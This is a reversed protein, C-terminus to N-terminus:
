QKYQSIREIHQQKVQEDVESYPKLLQYVDDIEQQSLVNDRTKILKKLLSPLATRKIVHVDESDATINKLECRESFIILSQFHSPNVNSLTNRLAKIHTKNQKIPNYFSQKKGNPFTQTWNRDEERGFIWGSYNKSEVVYIGTEHIFIVDVETLKDKGNQLYCNHITKHYGKTKELKKSTEYEGNLGKDFRVMRYPKKTEERYRSKMYKRRDWILRIVMPSTFFLFLVLSIIWM